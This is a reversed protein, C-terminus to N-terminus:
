LETSKGHKELKDIKDELYKLQTRYEENKKLQEQMFSDMQMLINVVKENRVNQLELLPFLVPRICKRILKKILNKVGHSPIIQSYYEVRYNDKLGQMQNELEFISFPEQDFNKDIEVDQFSLIDASYGKEKINQRIEEMIKEVDIKIMQESM